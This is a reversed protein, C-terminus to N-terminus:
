VPFLLTLRSTPSWGWTEKSNCNKTVTVPVPGTVTVRFTYCFHTRKPIFPPELNLCNRLGVPPRPPAAACVLRCVSFLCCVFKIKVCNAPFLFHRLNLIGVRFFFLVIAWAKM